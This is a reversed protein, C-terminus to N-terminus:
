RARVATGDKLGEYGAVVVEDGGAIPGSVAAEDEGLALVAVTVQRAVGDRVVFVITDDGRRLLARSSIVLDSARTKTAIEVSGTMGVRLAGLDTPGVIRIRVPYGTGGAETTTAEIAIHEVIGAFSGEPVADVLVKARQGLLVQTVDVEDVEAAVYIASLDYVTFLTQGPSVTVGVRLPGGGDDGGSRPLPPALDALGPPVSERSAAAGGTQGLQVTGAFPATLILQAAQAEAAAAAAAAQARAPATVGATAQRLARSLSAALAEQQGAAAQGTRLLAARTQQYAYEAADVAALAAERDRKSDIGQAKARAEALAPQTSADLAAVAASTAQLTRESGSDIAVHGGGAVADRAAEAERQAAEVQRSSLRVVTQGAEVRGGDDAEIAAVVGLIGAAVAQRAAAHVRAPASVTQTVEGSRVRETSVMQRQDGVCASALVILALCWAARHM